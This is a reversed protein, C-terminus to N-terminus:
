SLVASCCGIALASCGSPYQVHFLVENKDGGKGQHCARGARLRHGIGTNQQVLVFLAYRFIILGDHSGADSLLHNELPEAVLAQSGLLHRLGVGDCGLIQVFLDKSALEDFVKLKLQLTQM